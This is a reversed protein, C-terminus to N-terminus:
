RFCFMNGTKMIIIIIIIIIMMMMMLMMLLMMLTKVETDRAARKSEEGVHALM